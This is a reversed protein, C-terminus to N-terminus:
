RRTTGPNLSLAYDILHRPAEPTSLALEKLIAGLSWRFVEQFPSKAVSTRRCEAIHTPLVLAM